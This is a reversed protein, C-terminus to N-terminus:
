LFQNVKKKVRILLQINQINRKRKYPPALGDKVKNPVGQYVTSYYHSTNLIQSATPPGPRPVRRASERGRGQALESPCLNSEFLSFSCRMRDTKAM